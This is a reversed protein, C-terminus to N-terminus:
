YKILTNFLVANNNDQAEMGIMLETTIFRGNKPGFASFFSTVSRSM